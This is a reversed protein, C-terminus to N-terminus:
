GAVLRSRLQDEFESASLLGREDLIRRTAVLNLLDVTEEDKFAPYVFWTHSPDHDFRVYKEPEVRVSFGLDLLVQRLIAFTAPPM